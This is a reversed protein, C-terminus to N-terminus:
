AKPDHNNGNLSPAVPAPKSASAQAQLAALLQAATVPDLPQEANPPPATPRVQAIGTLSQGLFEGMRALSFVKAGQGSIARVDESKMADLVNQKHQEQMAVFLELDNILGQKHVARVPDAALTFAVTGVSVLGALGGLLIGIFGLFTGQINQSNVAVIMNVAFLVIEIGMGAYLIWDQAVSRSYNLKFVMLLGVMLPPAMFCLVTIWRWISDSPLANQVHTLFLSQIGIAVAISLGILLGIVVKEGTSRKTNEPKM